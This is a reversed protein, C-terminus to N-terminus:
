DLVWQVQGLSVSLIIDLAPQHFSSRGKIVSGVKDDIGKVAQDVGKVKYDVGRVMHAVGKVMGDVIQIRQDVDDVKEETVNVTDDIGRIITLAEVAAMQAEEQTLRDLRQLANEVEKRGIFKRLYRAELPNFKSWLDALFSMSTRGQKIEKTVIGLISLVEVMIMVIVDKM